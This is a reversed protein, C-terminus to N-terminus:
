SLFNMVVCVASASSIPLVIRQFCGGTGKCMCLSLFPALAAAASTATHLLLLLPASLQLLLLLLLLVHLLLLFLPPPLLRPLLQLVAATANCCYCDSAASM